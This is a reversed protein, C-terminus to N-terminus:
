RMWSFFCSILCEERFCHQMLRQFIAPATTLGFPLIDFEYSGFPTTFAPKEKDDDAVAIQNYGSTLGMTSIISYGHLVDFTEEVIPLPFKDKVTRMSNVTILAIVNHTTKRGFYYLQPLFHFQVEECSAM